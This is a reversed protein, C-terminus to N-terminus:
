CSCGIFAVICFAVASGTAFRLWWFGTEGPELLCGATSVFRSFVVASPHASLSCVRKRKGTILFGEGGSSNATESIVGRGVGDVWRRTWKPHQGHRVSASATDCVDQLPDDAVDRIIFSHLNAQSPTVLHRVSRRTLLADGVADGDGVGALGVECCAKRVGEAGRCASHSDDPCRRVIQAEDDGDKQLVVGRPQPRSEDDGDCSHCSHALLDGDTHVVIEAFKAVGRNVSIPSSVTLLGTAAM